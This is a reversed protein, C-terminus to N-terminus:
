QFSLTYLLAGGSIEIDFAAHTGILPSLDCDAVTEETVNRNKSTNGLM